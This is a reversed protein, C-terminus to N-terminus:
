DFCKVVFGVYGVGPLLLCNTSIVFSTEDLLFVGAICNCVKSDVSSDIDPIGMPGVPGTPIGHSHSLARSHSALFPLSHFSLM